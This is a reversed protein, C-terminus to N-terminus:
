VVNSTMLSFLDRVGCQQHLPVGKKIMTRPLQPSMNALESKPMACLGHIPKWQGVDKPLTPHSEVVLMSTIHAVGHEVSNLSEKIFANRRTLALFRTSWKIPDIHTVIWVRHCILSENPPDLCGFGRWLVIRMISIKWGQIQSWPMQWYNQIEVSPLLRWNWPRLIMTKILLIVKWGRNIIQLRCSHVSWIM